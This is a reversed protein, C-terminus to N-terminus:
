PAIANPSGLKLVAVLRDPRHFQTGVSVGTQLEHGVRWALYREVGPSGDYFGDSTYALWDDTAAGSPRHAFAFLTILHRGTAVEWVNTTGYSGGSYILRGDSSFVISQTKKLHGMLERLLKGNRVDWLKITKGGTALIAGDPSLAIPRGRLQDDIIESPLEGTRANWFRVPEGFTNGVSATCTAFTTNDPSFAVSTILRDTTIAAAQSGAPTCTRVLHGTRSEWVRTAGHGHGCILLHGDNSFALSTAAGDHGSFTRVVMGTAAERIRVIGDSGGRAVWAGDPSYAISLTEAAHDDMSWIPMGNAANWVHVVGSGNASAGGAGVHKGDPSIAVAMVQEAADGLQRLLCGTRANWLWVAGSALGKDSTNLVRVAFRYDSSGTVLLSGDRSVAVSNVQELHGPACWEVQDTALDVRKVTHDHSGSIIAHGDPTFALSTVNFDHSTVVRDTTGPALDYLRVDKGVGCALAKGDPTFALRLMRGPLTVTRELKGTATDWLKWQSNCGPDREAFFATNRGRHYDWDCSGSAMTEGDPSFVIAVIWDKHGALSSRLRGTRTDWLRVMKDGGGSALTASDPSFALATVPTNPAVLQHLIARTALNWVLIQKDTGASALLKGDPSFAIAYTEIEKHGAFTCLLKGTQVEYLGVLKDMHYGACALTRGDPSFAVGRGGGTDIARILQGTRADHLRVRGDFSDAAVLSGDPSVAVSTVSAEAAAQLVLERSTAPSVAFLPHCYVTSALAVTIRWLNRM